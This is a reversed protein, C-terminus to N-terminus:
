ARGIALLRQAPEQLVAATTRGSTLRAAVPLLVRDRVWRAAPHTREALAGLRASTDAVRRVAPRRRAGYAALAQDLTAARRLEDLLVAGDVLASNAGQGLNPAMAHAADGLLALRGDSWRACDVRVVENVLLADWSPVAGLLRRAPGYARGWAERLAGLDRRELAERCEPTGCSAYLYTGNDVAFSGFVGAPTWAECGTALGPAVLARLYRIGTSRTRAGFAGSARVLSHVGDAGIVLDAHLSEEEGAATRFTVTGSRDARVVERGFRATIRPEALVADLLVRQLTSRRLMVVRPAPRPPELLTRGDADTIRVGHVARAPELAPGLGLSELVALGNEAIAIGAGVARPEAVRELLTVRAGARALLLATASGGTAAGVVLVHLDAPRM